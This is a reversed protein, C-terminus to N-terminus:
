GNMPAKCARSRSDQGRRKWTSGSRGSASRGGSCRTWHLFSVQSSPSDLSSEAWTGRTERNQSSRAWARVDTRRGGSRASSKARSLSFGGTAGPSCRTTCLSRSRLPSCSDGSGSGTVSPSARRRTRSTRPSQRSRSTCGLAMNWAMSTFILFVVALELGIPHGQFAAVFFVLAAPFFGLIPVSQLIDLLPLMVLAARKSLAMTTGYAIAFVLALLYAAVMRALSFVALLPLAAARAASEPYLIAFAVGAVIFVLAVWRLRKRAAAM